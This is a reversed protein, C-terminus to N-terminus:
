SSLAAGRAPSDREPLAEIRHALGELSRHRAERHTEELLRSARERDKRGAQGLLARSLDFTTWLRLLTAGPQRHSELARELEAVARGWRGRLIELLGLAHRVSGETHLARTGAIMWTDACPRLEKEISAAYESEDHKACVLALWYLALLRTGEAEHRLIGSRERFTRALLDRLTDLEGVEGRGLARAWQYSPNQAAYSETAQVIERVRGQERRLRSLQIALALGGLPEGARRAIQAARLCHEEADDLRAELFADVFEMVATIWRLQPWPHRRTLELLADKEERAERLRGQQLLAVRRYVHGQSLAWVDSTARGLDLLETARGLREPLAEASTGIQQFVELVWGRTSGNGSGTAIELAERVLADRRAKTGPTDALRQALGALVRARLRTPEPGLRELAEQHLATLRENRWPVFAAETVCRALLEPDDLREALPLAREWAQDAAAGDGSKRAAQSLSVLLGCREAPAAEVGGAAHAAEVGGSAHARDFLADARAFHQAAERFALRRYAEEGALTRYRYARLAEGLDCALDFHHAIEAAREGAAAGGLDAELRVAVDRHLAARVDSPTQLYVAQRLLAHTFRHGGEASSPPDVLGARRLEELLESAEAAGVGAVRRLLDFRFEEGLVAACTLLRRAAPSRTELRRLVLREIEMPLPGSAESEDVHRFLQELFFPNGGAVRCIESRRPDLEDVAGLGAVLQASEEESLPELALLQVTEDRRLSALTSSLPHSPEVEDDRYAALILRPSPGSGAALDGLLLLSSSDACHLDDVVLVCLQRDALRDFLTVFSDLLSLRAIEPNQHLAPAVDDFLARVTPLVRGLEPALPRLVTRAQEQDSTQCYARVIQAWPWFPPQQGQYCRGWFVRAGRSEAVAAFQEALRSKGIGAPGALFVTQPRGALAAELAATLRELYAQRGVFRSTRKTPDSRASGPESPPSEAPRATVLRCGRGRVSELRISDGTGLARLARRVDRVASSLASQSVVQRPWLEDLLQAKSVAEGPTAALRLLLGFPKPRVRVVKDGYRAEQERRDLELGGM